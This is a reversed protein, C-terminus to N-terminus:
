APKRISLLHSDRYPVLEGFEHGPFLDRLLQESWFRVYYLHKRSVATPHVASVLFLGGPKLSDRVHGMARALKEETVIHQIVDIMVILDFQGGLAELTVDKKEFRAAPYDVRLKQFLVDTIDVGLYSRVGAEHLVGTYFGTGVGIELADTRDFAVKQRLCVARFTDAAALYMAQNEQESLGEDGPGRISRGYKAFRDRWYGSADYDAGRGYLWRDVFVKKIVRRVFGVPDEKLRAVAPKPAPLVHDEDPRGSGLRIPPFLL